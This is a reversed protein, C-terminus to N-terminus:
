FRIMTSFGPYHVDYRHAATYYNTLAYRVGAEIPLGRHIGRTDVLIVDGACGTITRVASPNARCLDDIDEDEFRKLNNKGRTYGLTNLVSRRTNSGILYQFPGNEAGVDSLYIIAKFQREYMSDRHWGGGSGKNQPRALLKAALTTINAVRTGLYSAAFSRLIPDDYFSRIRASAKESGWIRHDSGEADMELREPHAEVIADIAGTLETCASRPCFGPLVHLGDMRIADLIARGDSHDPRAARAHALYAADEKLCEWAVAIRLKLVPPLPIFIM